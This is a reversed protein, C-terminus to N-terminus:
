GSGGVLSSTTAGRNVDSVLRGTGPTIEVNEAAVRPHGPPLLRTV